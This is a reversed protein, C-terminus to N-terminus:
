VIPIDPYLKKYVDLDLASPCWVEDPFYPLPYRSCEYDVMLITKIGRERARVIIKWDFVEEFFLLTDCQEILADISSVVDDKYWEPHNIRSSHQKIFVKDIIGNDYFGRALYGLGQDTALVISGVKYNKM